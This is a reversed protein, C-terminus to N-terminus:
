LSFFLYCIDIIISPANLHKSSGGLYDQVARKRQPNHAALQFGQIVIVLIRKM